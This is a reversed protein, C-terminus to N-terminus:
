AARQKRAAAKAKRALYARLSNAADKWAAKASRHIDSYAGGQMGDRIFWCPRGSNRLSEYYDLRAYRAHALVLEKNTM